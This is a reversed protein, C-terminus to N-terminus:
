PLRYGLPVASIWRGSKSVSSLGNAQLARGVRSLHDALRAGADVEDGVRRRAVDEVAGAERHVAAVGVARDDRGIRVPGFLPKLETM